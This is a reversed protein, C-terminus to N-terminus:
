RVTGTLEVRVRDGPQRLLGADECNFGLASATRATVTQGSTENTCTVSTEGLGTATGGVTNVTVRQFRVLWRGTAPDQVPKLDRLYGAARHHIDTAISVWGPTDYTQLLTGDTGYRRNGRRTSFAISDSVWFGGRGDVAANLNPGYGSTMFGGVERGNLDAAVVRPNGYGTVWLLGTSAQYDMRIPSAVPSPFQRLLAGSDIDYEYITSNFYGSAWLRIGDTAVGHPFYSGRVPPREPIRKILTGDMAYIYVRGTDDRPRGDIAFDNCDAVFIRQGDFALGRVFSYDADYPHGWTTPPQPNLTDAQATVAPLLALLALLALCRALARFM